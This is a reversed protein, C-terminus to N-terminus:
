PIKRYVASRLIIELLFLIVGLALPLTNRSEFEYYSNTETESKELNDIDSINEWFVGSSQARYYKAGTTESIKELATGDFQNTEYHRPGISGLPGPYPVRGDKGIGVTYVRIGASACAKAATEPDIEGRNNMGDTILLIIRSKAKSEKMRSAALAVADGIATGDQRGRKFDLDAIIEKIIDHEVTLPCQFYADGAFVVLGIRDNVRKDIFSNVVKKAVELRNDPQFDEGMMSTSLDLAVMIDIGQNKISTYTIGRGPGAMAFILLAMSAFRLIILLLYTRTRWSLRRGTVQDSSVSLPFEGYRRRRRYLYILVVYPIFLLLFFPYKFALHSM